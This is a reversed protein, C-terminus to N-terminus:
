RPYCSTLKFNQQWTCLWRKLHLQGLFTQDDQVVSHKSRKRIEPQSIIYVVCENIDKMISNGDCKAAHGTDLQFLREYKEWYGNTFLKAWWSTVELQSPTLFPTRLSLIHLQDCDAKQMATLYFCKMNQRSKKPYRLHQLHFDKVSGCCAQNHLISVLRLM